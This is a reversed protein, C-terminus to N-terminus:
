RVTKGTIASPRNRPSKVHAVAGDDVADALVVDGPRLHPSVAACLGAVALGAHDSRALARAAAAARRPGMGTHVVDADGRAGRLMAAELALPAAVVPRASM